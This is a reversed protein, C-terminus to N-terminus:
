SNAYMEEILDRYKEEVQKRKVKLTPTLLGNEVSFEEPLLRFERIKEYDSLGKQREEVEREILDTIAANGILQTHSEVSIGTQSAHAQLAAFSPVILASIFNRKEGILVVQEIFKSDEVEREIAQPAVKKGVSTVILQKKRDTIKLYGEEDLQGIDGTHFWGDSLVEETEKPLKYYGMMVMPGQILIEGDEAIKVSVGPLPKGVTGFKPREAPNVTIVPSTESLGYGELIKLGAAYFFLGVPASLPAGGSIFYKVNGGTRARIKSLVLKDAIFTRVKLLIGVKGSGLEFEAKKMGVKLAWKFLVQKLGGEEEVKVEIASKVKEYFRPVAAMISPKAEMLTAAVADIQSYIISTGRYFYLYDVTREFAHSLPLFSLGSDKPGIEIVESCACVDSIINRHSLMVGKPVGTTGSTYIITAIVEPKALESCKEFFGADDEDRGMSLIDDFMLVQENEAEKEMAIVHKVKRLRERIQEIKGAQVMNSFMVCESDSNNTIYEVQEAILTPFIPVVIAGILHCAFDAIHWEPRNESLFVIKTEPKIGIARLGLAFDLVREKFENSSINYLNGDQGRYVMLNPKNYRTVNFEFLQSLTEVHM